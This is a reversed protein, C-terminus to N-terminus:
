LKIGFGLNFVGGWGKAELGIHLPEEGQFKHVKRQGKKRVRVELVRESHLAFCSLGGAGWEGGLQLDLLTEKSGRSKVLDKKRERGGGGCPGAKVRQARV